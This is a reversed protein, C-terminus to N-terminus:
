ISICVFRPTSVLLSCGDSRNVTADIIGVMKGRDIEGFYTSGNKDLRVLHWKTSDEDYRSANVRFSIWRFTTGVGGTHNFSYIVTSEGPALDVKAGTDRDTLFCRLQRTKHIAESTSGSLALLSLPMHLSNRVVFRPTFRILNSRFFVGALATVSVSFIVNSSCYVEGSTGAANMEIKESWDIGDRISNKALVLRGNEKPDWWKKLVAKTPNELPIVSIEKRKRKSANAEGENVCHLMVPLGGNGSDLYRKNSIGHHDKTGIVRYELKMGSQNSIWFPSYLAGRCIGREVVAADIFCDVTDGLRIPLSKLSLAGKNPNLGTRLKQLNITAVNSWENTTGRLGQSFQIFLPCSLDIGCLRLTKGSKLCSLSFYDDGRSGTPLHYLATSTSRGMLSPSKSSTEGDSNSESENSHETTLDTFFSPERWLENEDSARHQWAKIFIGFPMANSLLFFPVVSITTDWATRSWITSDSAINKGRREASTHVTLREKQINIGSLTHCKKVERLHMENFLFDKTLLVPDRWADSEEGSVDQFLLAHYHTSLVINLPVAAVSGENIILEHVILSGSVIRRLAAALNKKTLDVLKTNRKQLYGLKKPLRVIRVRIPIESKIQISSRVSLKVADLSDQNPVVTLFPAFGCATRKRRRRGLRSDRTLKLMTPQYPSLPIGDIVQYREIGLSVKGLSLDIVNGAEIIKTGREDTATMSVGVSNSLLVKKCGSFFSRADNKIIRGLVSTQTMKGGVKAADMLATIKKNIEVEGLGECEERWYTRALDRLVCTTDERNLSGRQSRPNAEFIEYLYRKDREYLVKKYTKPDAQSILKATILTTEFLVPSINIFLTKPCKLDIAFSPEGDSEQEPVSYSISGLCLYPEILQEMNDHKTNLYSVDLDGSYFRVVNECISSEANGESVFVSTFKGEQSLFALLSLSARSTRAEFLPKTFNQASGFSMAAYDIVVAVSISISYTSLQDSKELESEESISQLLSAILGWSHQTPDDDLLWDTEIIDHNRILGPQVLTKWCFKAFEYNSPQLAFYILM